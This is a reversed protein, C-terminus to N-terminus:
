KKSGENIEKILTIRRVSKNLPIVLQSKRNNGVDIHLNYQDHRKYKHLCCYTTVIQLCAFLQIMSNYAPFYEPKFMYILQASVLYPLYFCLIIQHHIQANQEVRDFCCIRQLAYGSLPNHHLRLCSNSCTSVIEDQFIDKKVKTIRNHSVDLVFHTGMGKIHRKALLTLANHSVNLLSLNPMSKKLDELTFDTIRNGSLNLHTLCGFANLASLGQMSWVKTHFNSLDCIGPNICAIKLDENEELVRNISYFQKLAAVLDRELIHPDHANFRKLLRAQLDNPAGLYHAILALKHAKQLNVRGILLRSKKVALKNILRQINGETLYNKDRSLLIPQTHDVLPDSCYERYVECAGLRQHQLASIPIIKGTSDIIDQVKKPVSEMAGLASAVCCVAFFINKMIISGLLFPCHSLTIM